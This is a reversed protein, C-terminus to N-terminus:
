KRNMFIGIKQIVKKELEKENLVHYEPLYIPQLEQDILVETAQISFQKSTCALILGPLGTIGNPGIAYPLDKTFWAEVLENTGVALNTYMGTAKYCLYNAIINQENTIIWNPNETQLILYPQDIGLSESKPFVMYNKKNELDYYYSNLSRIKQPEKEFHFWAINNTLLLIDIENNVLITNKSLIKNEYIIQLGQTYVSLTFLLLFIFISRQM